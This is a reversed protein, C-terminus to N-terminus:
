LTLEETLGTEYTAGSWNTVTIAYTGGDVWPEYSKRFYEGGISIGGMMDKHEDSDGGTYYLHETVGSPHTVIVSRINDPVGSADFVEVNFALSTGWKETLMLVGVEDSEIYPTVTTVGTWFQIPSESSAPSSSINDSELPVHSDKATIQYGYQTNAALVGPPVTYTTGSFDEDWVWYGPYGTTMDFIQIEYVTVGPVPDWSITPTTNALTTGSPPFFSTDDPPDLTVGSYVDVAATTHGDSDKATFTYSGPEISSVDPIFTSYKATTMNRLHGFQLPVSTSSPFTVTVTHGSGDSFFGDLDVVEVDFELSTSTPFDGGSPETRAVVGRSESLNIAPTADYVPKSLWNDGNTSGGVYDGSGTYGGGSPGDPAGWYNFRADTTIGSTYIGYGESFGNNKIDNYSITTAAADSVSVGINSNFELVNQYATVSSAIQSRIGFNNHHVKCGEIYASANNYVGLGTENHAIESDYIYV